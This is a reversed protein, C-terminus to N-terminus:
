LWVAGNLLEFHLLTLQLFFDINHALLFFLTPFFLLLFLLVGLFTLLTQQFLTFQNSLLLLFFALFLEGSEDATYKM